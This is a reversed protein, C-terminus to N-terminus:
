RFRAALSAITAGRKQAQLQVAYIFQHANLHEPGPPRRILDGRLLMTRTKAVPSITAAAPAPKHTKRAGDPGADCRCDRERTVVLGVRSTSATVARECSTWCSFAM